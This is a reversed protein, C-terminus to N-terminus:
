IMVFIRMPINGMVLKLKAAETKPTLTLTTSHLVTPKIFIHVNMCTFESLGCLHESLLCATSTKILLIDRIKSQKNNFLRISIM